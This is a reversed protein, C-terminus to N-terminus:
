YCLSRKETPTCATRPAEEATARYVNIHSDTTSSAAAYQLVHPHSHPCPHSGVLRLDIHLRAPHLGSVRMTTGETEYALRM